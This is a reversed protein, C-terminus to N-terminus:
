ENLENCLTSVKINTKIMNIDGIILIRPQLFQKSESIHRLKDEVEENTKGFIAFAGLSDEVSFKRSQKGGCKNPSLLLQHLNMLLIIDRTNERTDENLSNLNFGNLSKGSIKKKLLTEIKNSKLAWNEHINECNPYKITFDIDFMRIGNANTYEPWIKFISAASKCKEIQSFRYQSCRKWYDIYEDENLKDDKLSNRITEYDEEPVFHSEENSSSSSPTTSESFALKTQTKLNCMKAYIRGRKCTRYFELKESPFIKLIEEELRHSEGLSFPLDSDIFHKAITNILLKRQAEKFSNHKKYYEILSQGNKSKM